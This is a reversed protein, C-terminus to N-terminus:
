HHCPQHIPSLLHVMFNMLCQPVTQQKRNSGNRSPPNPYRLILRKWYPNRSNWRRPNGFLSARGSRISPECREPLRAGAGASRPKMSTRFLWSLARRPGRITRWIEARLNWLTPQAATDNPWVSHLKTTARAPVSPRPWSKRGGADLLGGEMTLAEELDPDIASLSDTLYETISVNREDRALLQEFREKPESRFIPYALGPPLLEM